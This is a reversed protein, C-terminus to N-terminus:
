LNELIHKILSPQHKADYILDHFTRGIKVELVLKLPNRYLLIGVLPTQLHICYPSVWVCGIGIKLGSSHPPKHFFRGKCYFCPIPLWESFGERIGALKM